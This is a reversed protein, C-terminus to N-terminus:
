NAAATKAIGEREQLWKDFADIDAARMGNASTRHSELWAQMTVMMKDALPRAHFFLDMYTAKADDLHDIGMYAEGRNALAEELDPKLALAHNYDDVSERFAGFHLHIFGIKNWADYMDNKNRLVETFEELARGYTDELKSQAKAKKGPDTAKAITDELEHAKLMSKMGAAYAKAAAKDPKVEAPASPIESEQQMRGGSGTIPPIGGGPYGQALSWGVPLEAILLILCSLFIRRM